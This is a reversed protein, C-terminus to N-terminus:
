RREEHPGPSPSSDRSSHHTPSSVTVCRGTDGDTEPRARDSPGTDTREAGSEPDPRSRKDRKPPRSRGLAVGLLIIGMGAIVRLGVQEGLVTWGLLVSVIPILYTVTSATTAGEDSIIRYQVSFAFGTGLIGLVAVSILAVPDLGVPTLGGVPLTLTSLMTAALMQMTAFAMPPHTTGNDRATRMARGIYVFSIGYCAAGGLCALAGWGLAGGSQWPALIVLVGLFGVFLGTVRAPTLGRETGALVGFLITWLPTTANIVGTLGSSITQEGEAFLFWPLSNGFLGALVIYGWVKREGPTRLGGLKVRAVLCFGVLVLAGLAIRTFAIQVPSLAELALKIFLFSGGWLVALTSLRLYNAPNNM